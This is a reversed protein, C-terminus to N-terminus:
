KDTDAYQNKINQKKTMNELREKIQKLLKYM